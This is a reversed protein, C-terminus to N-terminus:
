NSVSTSPSIARAVKRQFSLYHARYGANSPALHVARSLQSDAESFHYACEEAVGLYFHAQASQPTLEIARYLTLAAQDYKRENLYFMGLRMLAAFTPHTRVADRFATEALQTDGSAKAAGALAAYLTPANAGARIGQAILHQAAKLKHQPSLVRTVLYDYPRTDAPHNRIASELLKQAMKMHGARAYAAGAEVSYSESTEPDSEAEASRRYTDGADAFRGLAEYFNALSRVAGAYGRDIAEEFGREAAEKESDSLWPILRDSLYFHTSLMPSDEVSRTIDALAGVEDGRQLLAHAYVDRAYPNTPDLWVATRIEALRQEASIRTGALRVLDLHPISEAPHDSILAAAEVVSSPAKIDHPYPITEQGAAFVVLVIALASLLSATMRLKPGCPYSKTNRVPGVAMRVALALLVTFIVGNAPTRLSFDFFEHFTIVVLAACVAAFTPSIPTSERALRRYLCRGIAVFFWAVLGFGVVGTEALIQAYDNHAERYFIATWPPRSYRPFLEPWCGLGVGFVPHDHVMRLTDSVLQLRGYLASESYVTQQLRLDVRRRGHPGIFLLSIAVVALALVGVRRLAKGRELRLIHPRARHTIRASLGFLVALAILSAIWAGRSLSLLLACVTLLSTVLSFVRFERSSSFLDSQLLAGGVALPLVMALYDGFHDPNVFPGVARSLASPHPVGWDYPTFLWLIKGNWTFFEVIGVVAVILGSILAAMAIARSISKETERGASGFPYLLVLFFLAAYAIVELLAGATISPAVSVSRWPGPGALRLMSRVGNQSARTTFPVRAGNAVENVTPPINWRAGVADSVRAVGIQHSQKKPWGPLSVQYLRYTAPSVARLVAPPLPVLQVTVLAIFLLVPLAFARGSSCATPQSRGLATTLLWVAVSGFVTVEIVPLAWPYASGEPLPTIVILAVVLGLIINGIRTLGKV